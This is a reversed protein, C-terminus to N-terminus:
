GYTEVQQGLAIRGEEIEIERMLNKLTEYKEILDMNMGISGIKNVKEELAHATDQIMRMRQMAENKIIQSDVHIMPRGAIVNKERNTLGAVTSLNERVMTDSM